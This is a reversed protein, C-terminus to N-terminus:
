RMIELVKLLVIGICFAGPVVNEKIWRTLIPPPSKGNTHNVKSLNDSNYYRFTKSIINIEAM